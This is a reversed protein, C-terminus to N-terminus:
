DNLNKYDDEKKKSTKKKDVQQKGEKHKPLYKKIFFAAVAIVVIAGFAVSTFIVWNFNKGSDKNNEKDPEKDPTTEEEKDIASYKVTNVKAITPNDKKFTEVFKDYAAKDSLLVEPNCHAKGPNGGAGIELDHIDISDFFKLAEELPRGGFLVNMSGVKM